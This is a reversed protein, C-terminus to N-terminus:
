LKSILKRPGWGLCEAGQLASGRVGPLEVHLFRLGCKHFLTAARIQKGEALGSVTISGKRLKANTM